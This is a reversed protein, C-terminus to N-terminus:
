RKRRNDDKNRNELCSRLLIWFRGGLGNGTRGIRPWRYRRFFGSWRVNALIEARYPGIRRRWNPERRTMKTEEGDIASSHKVLFSM